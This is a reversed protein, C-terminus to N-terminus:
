EEGSWGVAHLVLGLLTMIALWGPGAVLGFTAARSFEMGDFVVGLVITAVMVIM